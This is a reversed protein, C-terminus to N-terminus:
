NRSDYPEKRSLTTLLIKLMKYAVIAFAKQSRSHQRLRPYFEGVRFDNTVTTKGSKV